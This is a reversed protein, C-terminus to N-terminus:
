TPWDDPGWFEAPEISLSGSIEGTKGPAVQYTLAYGCLTIPAPGVDYLTGGSTKQRAPSLVGSVFTVLDGESDDERVDIVGEIRPGIVPDGVASIGAGLYSFRGNWGGGSTAFPATLTININVGADDEPDPSDYNIFISLSVPVMERGNDPGGVDVETATENLLRLRTYPGWTEDINRGQLTGHVRWRKASYIRAILDHGARRPDVAGRGASEPVIQSILNEVNLAYDLTGARHYALEEAPVPVFPWGHRTTPKPLSTSPSDGLSVWTVDKNGPTPFWSAREPAGVALVTPSPRVEGRRPTQMLPITRYRPVRAKIVTNAASM